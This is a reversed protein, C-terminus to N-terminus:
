STRDGLRHSTLRRQAIAWLPVALFLNTGVQVLEQRIVHFVVAGLMVVFLGVAAWAALEPKISTLGPVILFLGGAIEALGILVHLPQSLDYMWSMTEPLSDPLALHTVGIAVFYLGMMVQLVWLLRNM